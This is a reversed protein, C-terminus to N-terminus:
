TGNQNPESGFNALDVEVAAWDLSLHRFAHSGDKHQRGEQPSWGQHAAAAGDKLGRRGGQCTFANQPM